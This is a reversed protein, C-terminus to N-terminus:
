YFQETSIIFVYCLNGWFIILVLCGRSGGVRWLDDVRPFKSSDQQGVQFLGLFLSNNWIAYMSQERTPVQFLRRSWSPLARFVPLQEPNCVHIRWMHSSPLHPLHWVLPSTCNDVLEYLRLFSSNNWIAGMFPGHTLPTQSTSQFWCSFSITAPKSITKAQVQWKITGKGPEM